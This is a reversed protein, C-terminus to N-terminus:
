GFSLCFVNRSGATWNVEPRLPDLHKVLYAYMKYSTFRTNSPWEANPNQESQVDMLPDIQERMYEPLFVLVPWVEKIQEPTWPERPDIM